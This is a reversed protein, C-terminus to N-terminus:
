KIILEVQIRLVEEEPDFYYLEGTKLSIANSNDYPVEPIAKMFVKDEYIYCSGDPVNRFQCFGLNREDRIKM